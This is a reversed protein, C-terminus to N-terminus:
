LLGGFPPRKRIKIKKVRSALAQSCGLGEAVEVQALGENLLTHINATRRHRKNSAEHYRTAVELGPGLLKRTTVQNNVSLATFKIVGSREDM